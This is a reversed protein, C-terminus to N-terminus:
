VVAETRGDDDIRGSGGGGSGGGGASGFGGPGPGAGGGGGLGGGGGGGSAVGGGSSGSPDGGGGGGSQPPVPTPQPAPTPPAVPVSHPEFTSIADLDEVTFGDLGSAREFTDGERHAMRLVDSLPMSSGEQFGGGTSHIAVHDGNPTREITTTSGDPHHFTGVLM